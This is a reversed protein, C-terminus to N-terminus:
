HLRAIRSVKFGPAMDKIFAELQERALEEVKLGQAEAHDVLFSWLVCMAIAEGDSIVETRKMIFARVQNALATNKANFRM